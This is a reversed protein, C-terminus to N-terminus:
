IFSKQKGRTFYLKYHSGITNTKFHFPVILLIFRNILCQKQVRLCNYCDLVQIPFPKRWRYMRPTAGEFDLCPRIFMAQSFGLKALM